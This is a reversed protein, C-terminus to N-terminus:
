SLMFSERIWLVSTRTVPSADPLVNLTVGDLQRELFRDLVGLQQLQRMNTILPRSKSPGPSNMHVLRHLPAQCTQVNTAITVNPGVQVM